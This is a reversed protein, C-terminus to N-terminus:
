SSSQASRYRGFRALADRMRAEDLLVPTGCQLVQAYVRCLWEVQLALEFCDSLTAGTAVMGHNALLCAHRDRLAALTVASLRASGFPEYPACPLSDGGAVAIMYHFAPVGERQVKDLCALTTAWPAHVHIVAGVGPRDLHVDHHLRWESSPRRSGFCEPPDALADDRGAALGPMLPLWVIDDEVMRDYDIASPTLLLGDRGGRHWRLSLNGARGANLGAPGLAKAAGLLAARAAQENTFGSTM